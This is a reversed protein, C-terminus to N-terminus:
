GIQSQRNRIPRLVADSNLMTRQNIRQWDLCVPRRADLWFVCRDFEGTPFSSWGCFAQRIGIVEAHYSCGLTAESRRHDADSPITIAMLDSHTIPMAPIRVVLALTGPEPASPSPIISSDLTFGASGEDSVQAYASFTYAGPGLTQTITDPGQNCFKEHECYTEILGGLNLQAYGFPGSVDPSVNWTITTTSTFAFDFSADVTAVANNFSEVDTFGSIAGATITGNARIESRVPDDPSM